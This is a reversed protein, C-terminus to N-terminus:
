PTSSLQHNCWMKFQVSHYKLMYVWCNIPLIKSFFSSFDTKPPSCFCLLEKPFITLLFWVLGKGICYLGRIKCILCLFYNSSHGASNDITTSHHLVPRHLSQFFSQYLSIVCGDAAFNTEFPVIPLKELFSSSVSSSFHISWHTQDIQGQLSSMHM